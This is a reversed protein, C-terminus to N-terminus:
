HTMTTKERHLREILERNQTESSKQNVIIMELLKNLATGDEMTEVKVSKKLRKELSKQQELTVSEDDSLEIM